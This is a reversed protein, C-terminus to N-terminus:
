LKKGETRSPVKQARDQLTWIVGLKHELPHLADLVEQKVGLFVFNSDVDFRALGHSVSKDM